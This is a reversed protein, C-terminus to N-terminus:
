YRVFLHTLFIGVMFKHAILEVSIPSMAQLSKVALCTAFNGSDTAPDQEGDFTLIADYIRQIIQLEGAEDQPYDAAKNESNGVRLKAKRVAEEYRVFDNRNRIYGKFATTKEKLLMKVHEQFRDTGESSSLAQLPEAVGAGPPGANHPTGAQPTAASQPNATAQPIMPAQPTARAQPPAAVQTVAAQPRFGPGTQHFHGAPRPISRTPFHTQNVSPTNGASSNGRTVSNTARILNSPPTHYGAAQQHTQHNQLQANTQHNQVRQFHRYQQGMMPVLQSVPKLAHANNAIALEPNGGNNNIIQQNAPGPQAGAQRGQQAVQANGPPYPVTATAGHQNRTPLTYLEGNISIMQRQGFLQIQGQLPRQQTHVADWPIPQRTATSYNNQVPTAPYMGNVTSNTREGAFGSQARPGNSGDM